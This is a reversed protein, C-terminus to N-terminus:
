PSHQVLEFTKEGPLITDFFASMRDVISGEPLSLDECYTCRWLGTDDIKAIIAGYKPDIAATATRRSTM